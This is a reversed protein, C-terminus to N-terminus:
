RRQTTTRAIEENPNAVGVGGLAAATASQNTNAFGAAMAAGPLVCGIAVVAFHALFKTNM